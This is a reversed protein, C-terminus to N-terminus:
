PRSRRSSRRRRAVFLTAGATAFLLWGGSSRSEATRCGCGGGNSTETGGGGEMSGDQTAADRSADGTAADAAADGVSADGGGDVGADGPFHVTVGNSVADVSPGNPGIARVAFVYRAGNQLPLGPLSTSTVNGVNKWLPMSVPQGNTATVVEVAYSTAGGVSAWVASLKNTTEITDVDHNTIGHDPDTDWVYAPAAISFGKYDYLYGDAATVLIEDMGDGDTDGFV